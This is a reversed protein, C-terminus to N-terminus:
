QQPPGSKFSGSRWLPKRPTSPEVGLNTPAGETRAPPDIRLMREREAEGRRWGQASGLTWALGHTISLVALAVLCVIITTM